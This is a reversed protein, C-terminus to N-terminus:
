EATGGCGRQEHEAYGAFDRQYASGANTPAAPDRSYVAVVQGAHEGIQNARM